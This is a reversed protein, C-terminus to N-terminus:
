EDRELPVIRVELLSGNLLRVKVANLATREFV